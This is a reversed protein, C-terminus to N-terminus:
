HPLSAKTAGKSTGADSGRDNAPGRSPSHLANDAAVHGFQSFLQFEMVTLRINSVMESVLMRDIVLAM